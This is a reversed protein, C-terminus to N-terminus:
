PITVERVESVETREAVFPPLQSLASEGDEAQVTWFLRHGGSACSALAGNRRLPSDFGSWAAYTTRCEEPAHRHELVYRRV